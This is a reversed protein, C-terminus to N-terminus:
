RRGSRILPSKVFSTERLYIPELKEGATFSQKSLAIGGVAAARPFVNRARPFWGTIEPGALMEGKSGLLEVEAQTALRLPGSESYGEISVEYQATYFEGRQADVVTDVRGRMGECHCQAAISEMSSIGQIPTGRALQWGQALAIAARVGSYSGPGIGVAVRDIEEPEVNAERLVGDILGMVGASGFGTEIKEFTREPECQLGAEAPITKGWSLVAASRQVTSFELALIKMLFGGSSNM